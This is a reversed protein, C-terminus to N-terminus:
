KNKKAQMNRFHQLSFPKRIFEWNLRDLIGMKKEDVLLEGKGWFANVKDWWRKGEPGLLSTFREEAIKRRQCVNQLDELLGVAAAESVYHEGELLWRECVALGLRVEEIRGAELLNALYDALDGLLLYNPLDRPDNKPLNNPNDKWEAVFAEWKPRFEPLAELLPEFMDYQTIL